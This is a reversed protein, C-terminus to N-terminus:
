KIYEDQFRFDYRSQRYFDEPNREINFMGFVKQAVANTTNGTTAGTKENTYCNEDISLVDGNAFTIDAGYSEGNKTSKGTIYQVYNPNIFVHDTAYEKGKVDRKKCPGIQVLKNEYAAPQSVSNLRM